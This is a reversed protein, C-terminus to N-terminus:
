GLLYKTVIYIGKHDHGCEFIKEFYYAVRSQKILKNVLVLTRPLTSPGSDIENQAM